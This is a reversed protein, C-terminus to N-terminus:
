SCTLTAVELSVESKGLMWKGPPIEEFAVLYLSIARSPSSHLDGIKSIPEALAVDLM